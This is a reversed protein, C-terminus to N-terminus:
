GQASGGTNPSKTALSLFIDGFVIKKGGSPMEQSTSNPIGLLLRAEPTALGPFESVDDFHQREKEPLM